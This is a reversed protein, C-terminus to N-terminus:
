ASGITQDPAGGRGGDSGCDLGGGPDGGPDAAFPFAGDARWPGGLYRWLALSDAAVEYPQFGESLAMHLAKANAPAVKNQITVHPRYGQRDQPTLWGDWEAALAARLGSLAASRLRWAVGRGLTMPGDVVVPFRPTAAAIAGLRAAIADRSGGPLHHFLCVHAPIKNLRSPFHARRDREFAAQADPALVLTLILPPDTDDM